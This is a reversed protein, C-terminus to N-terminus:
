RIEGDGEGREVGEAGVRQVLGQAVAALGGVKEHGLVGGDAGEELGHVAGDAAVEGGEAGSRVREAGAVGACVAIAAGPGDAEAGAAEMGVVDVGFAPERRGTVDGESVGASLWSAQILNPSGPMGM